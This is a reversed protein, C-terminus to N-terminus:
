RVFGRDSNQILDVFLSVEPSEQALVKLEDVIEVLKLSRRFIINYARKLQRITDESFGSRQLGILNLGRTESTHSTVMVYPLVDHNVLAGRTIFSHSGVRCFQHVATFAGLKAHDDVTVRGALTANNTFLIHNGVHCDHGIHCYAFIWNNNGIRTTRDGHVSGRSTVYERMINHDGIVLFTEEGHYATDQPDGGIVSFPHIQNNRGIKTNPGVIAHPFVVTGSGIETNAGIVTWPGIKVNDHIIATPDIVASPHIEAIPSMIKEKM